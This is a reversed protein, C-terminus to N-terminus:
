RRLDGSFCDKLVKGDNKHTHVDMLYAVTAFIDTHHVPRRVILGKKVGPGYIYMWVRAPDPYANEHHDMYYLNRGHDVNIILYTNDKYYPDERIFEWIEMIRADCEKLALAYRSFSDSHASEVDNLIYHMLKPRFRQMVKKLFGYQMKGVSDWNPWKEPNKEFLGSFSEWTLKEQPTLIGKLEESMDQEMFGLACPFTDEPYDQTACAYDPSYWHGMSWLKTRPPAYKKSVYQFISPARLPYGYFPYTLGTNIAHFVPMHFQHNLNVLDTYLAGEKFIREWLNPMYQHTPDDISESGRVGSFTLIIVNPIEKEFVDEGCAKGAMAWFSFFAYASAASIIITKSPRM